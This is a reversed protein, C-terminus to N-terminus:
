KGTEPDLPTSRYEKGALIDYHIVTDSSFQSFDFYVTEANFEQDKSKKEGNVYYFCGFGNTWRNYKASYFPECKKAEITSDLGIPKNYYKTGSQHIRLQAFGVTDFANYAEVKIDRLEVVCNKSNTYTSYPVTFQYRDDSVDNSPTFFTTIKGGRHAKQGFMDYSYSECDDGYVWYNAWVKVTADTPKLGTVLISEQETTNLISYLGSLASVSVLVM